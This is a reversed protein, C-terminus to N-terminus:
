TNKNNWKMEFQEPANNLAPCEKVCGKDSIRYFITQGERRTDVINAKKLVGLHQSVNQISSGAKATIENVSLEGQILMWLIMLRRPNGITRCIEAQKEAKEMLQADM